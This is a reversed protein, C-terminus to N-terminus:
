RKISFEVGLDCGVIGFMEAKGRESLVSFPLLWNSGGEDYTLRAEDFSIDIKQEASIGLLKRIHRAEFAHSVTQKLEKIALGACGKAAVSQAPLILLFLSAMAFNKCVFKM